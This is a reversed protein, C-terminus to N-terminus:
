AKLDFQATAQKADSAFYSEFQKVILDSIGVGGADALKEAFAEDLMTEFTQSQSDKEILGSDGVTQRMSKLLMNMFIEEFDAAVKKLQAIDQSEAAKQLAAEFSAVRQDKQQYNANVTQAQITSNIDNIKVNIM